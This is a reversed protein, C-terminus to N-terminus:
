LFMNNKSLFILKSNPIKLKKLIKKGESVIDKQLIDKEELLKIERFKKQNNFIDYLISNTKYRFMIDTYKLGDLTYGFYYYGDDFEYIFYKVKVM